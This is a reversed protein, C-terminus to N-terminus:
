DEDGVYLIGVHTSDVVAAGLEFTTGLVPWYASDTGSRLFLADHDFLSLFQAVLRRAEGDPLLPVGYAQSTTLASQWAACAEDRSVERWAGGLPTTDREVLLRDLVDAFSGAGVGLYGTVQLAAHVPAAELEKQLAAVKDCACPGNSDLAVLDVERLVRATLFLGNEINPAWGCDTVNSRRGPRADLMAAITARDLSLARAKMEDLTVREVQLLRDCAQQVATDWGHADVWGSLGRLEAAVRTGTRSCFASLRRLVFCADHHALLAEDSGAAHPPRVDDTELRLFGGAAVPAHVGESLPAFWREVPAGLHFRHRHWPAVHVPRATRREAAWALSRPLTGVGVDGLARAREKYSAVLQAATRAGDAVGDTTSADPVPSAVRLAAVAGAVDWGVSDLAARCEVLPAFVEEWVSLLLEVRTADM